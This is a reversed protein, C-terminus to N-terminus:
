WQPLGPVRSRWSAGSNLAPWQQGGRDEDAPEASHAGKAMATERSTRPRPWCSTRLRWFTWSTAKAISWSSRINSTVRGKWSLSLVIWTLTRLQPLLRHTLAHVNVRLWLRISALQIFALYNDALKDYRTAVRRCQKIKNFFREVLNRARYLYPSFSLADKRNSKPPIDGLSWAPPCSNQDLRCM